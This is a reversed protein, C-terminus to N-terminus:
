IGEDTKSNPPRLEGIAALLPEAPAKAIETLRAIAHHAAAERQRPSAHRKFSRYRRSSFGNLVPTHSDDHKWEHQVKDYTVGEEVQRFVLDLANEKDDSVLFCLHYAMGLHLERPGGQECTFSLLSTLLDVAAAEVYRQEYSPAAIPSILLALGEIEDPHDSFVQLDFPLKALLWRIYYLERQQARM